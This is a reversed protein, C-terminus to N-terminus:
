HNAGDGHQVSYRELSALVFIAITGAVFRWIYSVLDLPVERAEGLHWRWDAFIPAAGFYGTAYGASDASKGSTAEIHCRHEPSSPLLM